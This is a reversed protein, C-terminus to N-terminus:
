FSGTAGAFGHGDSEPQVTGGHTLEAVTGLVVVAPPEYGPKPAARKDAELKSVSM